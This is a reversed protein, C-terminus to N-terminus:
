KITDYLNDVKVERQDHLSAFRTVPGFDKGVIGKEIGLQHTASMSSQLAPSSSYIEKLLVKNEYRDVQAEMPAKSDDGRLFLGNAIVITHTALVEIAKFCELYNTETGTVTQEM